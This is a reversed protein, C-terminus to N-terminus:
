LVTVNIKREGYDVAPGGTKCRLETIRRGDIEISFPYLGPKISPSANIIIVGQFDIRPKVTLAPPNFVLDLQTPTSKFQIRNPSKDGHYRYSFNLQKQGGQEIILSCNDVSLTDIALPPDMPHTPSKTVTRQEGTCGASFLVVVLFLLAIVLLARKRRNTNKSTIVQMIIV